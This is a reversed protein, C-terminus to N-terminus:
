DRVKSYHIGSYYKSNLNNPRNKWLRNHGNLSSNNIDTANHAPEKAKKNGSPEQEVEDNRHAKTITKLILKAANLTKAKDDEKM